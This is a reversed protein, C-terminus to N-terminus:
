INEPSRREEDAGEDTEPEFDSLTGMHARELEAVSEDIDDLDVEVDSGARDLEKGIDRRHEEERERHNDLRDAVKGVDAAQAESFRFRRQAKEDERRKLKEHKRWMQRMRLVEAWLQEFREQKDQADIKADKAEAKANFEDVGNEKEADHLRSQYRRWASRTEIRLERIDAVRDRIDAVFEQESIDFDLVAVGKQPEADPLVEANGEVLSVLEEQESSDVSAPDVWSVQESLWNRFKPNLKPAM